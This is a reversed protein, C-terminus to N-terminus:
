PSTTTVWIHTPFLHDLLAHCIKVKGLLHMSVENLIHSLNISIIRVQLEYNGLSQQEEQIRKASNEVGSSCDDIQILKLTMIDGISEPKEELEYLLDLLLQELMPFNDSCATLKHAAVSVQEAQLLKQQVQRVQQDKQQQQRQWVLSFMSTIQVQLEYNGLSQQEQQIKEASTEVGSSCYKIQILKLTMIDGISEPIEELKDLWFMMLKELMPFNDSGAEWKQLDRCRHLLLHKLKCFVADENLRWDTGDFASFELVELNPLNALLNISEWPIYTSSLTLEKLNPLFIDGSFIMIPNVTQQDELHLKELKELLSLSDLIALGDSHKAEHLIRLEKLNPTRRIIEVAFPSLHLTLTQLNNLFLPHEGSSNNEAEVPNSIYLPSRIDVHRIETTTWIDVPHKLKTGPFSEFIITQLNRLKALSLTEEIKAAVYRLHVLQPIVCSFDYEISFVDLVKLLKLQSVISLNRKPFYTPRSIFTRTISTIGSSHRTPYFEKEELDFQVILRRQDDIAELSIPVNGNMVHVVNETHAERLCLQRLLDHIKCTRMMGNDEQTGAFMLSRDILEDLYEEAVVELRKNSRGRVFEEAIWLKILKSVNIERDEPFGGVYLFCAKLYQPLYNYSLSLISQCRESVTGFFSSMNEEVKKWNDYTPDMKGLLGAVVIVSLPLGQCQQVIHKGIEVLLPPCVDKKFLKGTFLNWSDDLTLFSKCHPPFDPCNVYDAVYKLRTTLLIRSKNDDNPFIRQMQDWAETSWIDDVVILFRWGKLGRHVIEMLEDDSMEQNSRTISSAVELLMQRQNYEESITVWAHKDFRSCISSDDYVKRALTTKGIGGMGFIPIVTLEHTQATLRDLITNFDDEMGVISNEEITSKEPSSPTAAALEASRSGHKNFEIQMVEQRLSDVDKEVKVLEEEFFKAAGERNETSDALIINRLSSDVKDEAKYIVDRIRKEIFKLTEIDKTTTNDLFRQLASLNQYLSQLHQQTCCRCVFSQNPKFLQELTYMLSSLAAYAMEIGSM